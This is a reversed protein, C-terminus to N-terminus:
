STLRYRLAPLPRAGHARVGLIRVELHLRGDDVLLEDAGPAHQPAPLRLEDGDETNRKREEVEVYEIDIRELREQKTRDMDAPPQCDAKQDRRREHAGPCLSNRPVVPDQGGGSGSAR